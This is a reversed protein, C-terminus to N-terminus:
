KLFNKFAYGEKNIEICEFDIENYQNEENRCRRFHFVDTLIVTADNVRQFPITWYKM